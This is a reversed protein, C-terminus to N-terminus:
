STFKGKNEGSDAKKINIKKGKLFFAAESICLRDALDTSDCEVFAYGKNEKTVKNPHSHNWDGM